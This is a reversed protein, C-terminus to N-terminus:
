KPFIGPSLDLNLTFLPWHTPDKEAIAKEVVSRIREFFYKRMTPEKGSFPKGHAVISFTKKTKPDTFWVLDQEIALPTGTALARDIRDAWLGYYPYCNHADLLVRSGPKPVAAPQATAQRAFPWQVVCVALIM